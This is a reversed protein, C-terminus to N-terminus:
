QINGLASKWVMFSAEDFLYFYIELETEAKCASMAIMAAEHCPYGYVGCSIAPCAITHANKQKALAFVHQYCAYLHEAPNSDSAYIPGVTHIVFKASLDGASTIRAEGVPCRVGDVEPVLCCAALLTPGAARHIAGDVGGGGLMQPNAANVIIDVNAQTIDGHVLHIHSANM